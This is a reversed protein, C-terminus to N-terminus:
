ERDLVSMTYLDEALGPVNSLNALLFREGSNIMELIGVDAAGLPAGGVHGNGFYTLDAGAIHWALQAGPSRSLVDAPGIEVPERRPPVSRFGSCSRRRALAIEAAHGLESSTTSTVVDELQRRLAEPTLSASPKRHGTAGDCQRRRLDGALAQMVLEYPETPYVAINLGISLEPSQGVHWYDPPWHLLDGAQGKLVFSSVVDTSPWASEPASPPSPWQDPPWVLMWKEGEIVCHLNLRPENHIGGPTSPYRGVFLEADLWGVPTWDRGFINALCARLRDFLLRSHTQVSGCYVAFDTLMGIRAFYDYAVEDAQPVLPSDAGAVARGDVFLKIRAREADAHCADRLAIFVDGASVALASRMVGPNDPDWSEHIHPRAMGTV